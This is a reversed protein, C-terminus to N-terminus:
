AQVGFLMIQVFQTRGAYSLNKVTGSSIKAVIKEILPQWQLLSLKKTSLSAGFYKFPLEGSSFGLEHQIRERDARAIGGFYVSNKGLNAKLGLAESFQTFCHHLTIMSTIDGRAVLLLNDAFCLHTIALKSCKPHYHFDAIETLGRLSRSLYEM